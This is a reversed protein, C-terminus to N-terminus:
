RFHVSNVLFQSNQKLQPGRPGSSFQFLNVIKQSNPGLYFSLIMHKRTNFHLFVHLRLKRAYKSYFHDLFITSPNSRVWKICILTLRINKKGDAISKRIWLKLYWIKRWCRRCHGVVHRKNKHQSYLQWYGCLMIKSKKEINRNWRIM